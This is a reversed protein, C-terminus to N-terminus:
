IVSVSNFPLPVFHDFQEQHSRFDSYNIPLMGISYQVNIIGALFSSLIAVITNQFAPM